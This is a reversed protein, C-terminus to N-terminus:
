GQAVVHLSPQARLVEGLTGVILPVQTHSINGLFKLTLHWGRARTWGIDGKATQLALQVKAIEEIVTPALTVAIFARIL